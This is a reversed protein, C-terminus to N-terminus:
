KSPLLNDALQLNQYADTFDSTASSLASEAATLYGEIETLKQGTLDGDSVARASATRCQEILIGIQKSEIEKVEPAWGAGNDSANLARDAAAHVADRALLDLRKASFKQIGGTIAPVNKGFM